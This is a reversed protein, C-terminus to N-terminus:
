EAAVIIFTYHDTITARAATPGILEVFARGFMADTTTLSVGVMTGTDPDSPTGDPLTWNDWDLLYHPRQFTFGTGLYPQLEPPVIGRNVDAPWENTDAHYAYAAVRVAHIESMVAAARAKYAYQRYVPVAVRALIAGILVVMLLEILTFGARRTAASVPGSM